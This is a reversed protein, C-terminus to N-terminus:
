KKKAARRRKSGEREWGKTTRQVEWTPGSKKIHESGCTPCICREKMPRGRPLEVIEGSAIKEARRKKSRKLTYALWEKHKPHDVPRGGSWKPNGPRPM